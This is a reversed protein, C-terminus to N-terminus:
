VKKAMLEKLKARHPRGRALADVEEELERLILATRWRHLL